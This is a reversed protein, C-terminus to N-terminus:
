SVSLVPPNAKYSINTDIDVVRVGSISHQGRVLPILTIRCRATSCPQVEGLSVGSVGVPVIDGVLDRRVQLYLRVARAMNNRAACRAVFPRHAYIEKPVAYISVDVDSQRSSPETATVVNDLHGCEGHASRWSITLHGLQRLAETQGAEKSSLRHLAGSSSTSSLESPSKLNRVSRSTIRDTRRLSGQLIRSTSSSAATKPAPVLEDAESKSLSRYVHFLFTRADGVGMSADRPSISAAEPSEDLSAGIFASSKPASRLLAQVRFPPRPVFTAETVYVPVPVANLIRLDVLYHVFNAAHQAFIKPFPFPELGKYLPLVSLSPELPPLVNFSFTQQLTRIQGTSSAPDAYTAACLLKHVGLEPLPIKVVTNISARPQLTPRPAHSTDHLPLTRQSSTQVHVSVSVNHIPEKSQNFVSVFSRFNESAYISGLSSPLVCLTGVGCPAGEGEWTPVNSLMLDLGPSEGQSSTPSRTAIFPITNTAAPLPATLRMVNMTLASPRATSSGSPSPRARAPSADRM